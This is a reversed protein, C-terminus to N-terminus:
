DEKSPVKITKTSSRFCSLVCLVFLFAFIAFLVAFGGVGIIYGQTGHKGQASEKVKKTVAKATKLWYEIQSPKPPAIRAPENVFGGLVFEKISAYDRGKSNNYKYLVGQDDNSKSLLLITPSGRVMLRTPVRPNQNLDMTSIVIENDDGRQLIEKDQALQSFIPLLVKSHPCRHSHFLVLWSKEKSKKQRTQYDFNGDTLIAVNNNSNKGASVVSILSAMTFTALFLVILTQSPLFM